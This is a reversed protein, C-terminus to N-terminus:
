VLEQGFYGLSGGGLPPAPGFIGAFGQVTGVSVVCSVGHLGIDVGVVDFGGDLARAPVRVHGVGGLGVEMDFQAVLTVREEGALLLQNVGTSSHLTELTAVTGALALRLGYGGRRRLVSCPAVRDPTTAGSWRTERQVGEMNSSRIAASSDSNSATSTSRALGSMRESESRTRSRERRWLSNPSITRTQCSSIAERASTAVARSISVSADPSSSSIIRWSTSS